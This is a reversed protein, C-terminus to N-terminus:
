GGIETPVKRYNDRITTFSHQMQLWIIFSSALFFSFLCPFIIEEEMDCCCPTSYVNLSPCGTWITEIFFQLNLLNSHTSIPFLWSSSKDHFLPTLLAQVRCDLPCWCMFCYPHPEPHGHCLLVQVCLCSEVWLLQIGYSELSFQGHIGNKQM